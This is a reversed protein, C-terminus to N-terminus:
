DGGALNLMILSMVVESDTWGQEGARVKIHRDILRWLGSAHALDLYTALSGLATMGCKQKEVEYKFHLIGQAM